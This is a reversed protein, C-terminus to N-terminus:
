STEQKKRNDFLRGYTGVSMWFYGAWVSWGM